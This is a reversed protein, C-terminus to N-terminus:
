LTISNLRYLEGDEILSHLMIIIYRGECQTNNEYGEKCKCTYAGAVNVCMETIINCQHGVECEDVDIIMLLLISM